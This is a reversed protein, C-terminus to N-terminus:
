AAELLIGDTHRQYVWESEHEPSGPIINFQRAIENILSKVGNARDSQVIANYCDIAKQKQKKAAFIHFQIVNTIESIVEPEVKIDVQMKGAQLEFSALLSNLLQRQKFFPVNGKVKKLELIATDISGKEKLILMRLLFSTWEDSSKPLNCKLLDAAETFMNLSLLTSVKANIAPLFDPRRLLISNYVAIAEQNQASYRMMKALGMSARINNPNRTAQQQYALLSAYIDGKKYHLYAQGLSINFDTPFLKLAESYLEEAEFFRGLEVLIKAKANMSVANPGTTDLIDTYASLAKMRDGSLKLTDARGNRAPINFPYLKITEDYLRLAMPYNGALKYVNAEASRALSVNRGGSKVQGFVTLAEGLRGLDVLTSALGSRLAYDNPWRELLKKYEELAGTYDGMDRLTEAAGAYSYAVDPIDDYEEATKLFLKRAEYFYGSERLIRARGNQAFHRDGIKEVNSLATEAEGWRKLNIFADALHGYTVSDSPNAETALTAWELELEFLEQLKAEQALSCLTKGVHESTSNSRQQQILQMAFRKAAELDRSKLKDIIAKQQVRVNEFVTRSSVNVGPTWREAGHTRRAKPSIEEVENRLKNNVDFRFPKLWATIIREAHPFSRLQNLLKLHLFKIKVQDGQTNVLDFIAGIHVLRNKFAKGEDNSFSLEKFQTNLSDNIKLIFIQNLNLWNWVLHAQHYGEIHKAVEDMRKGTPLESVSLANLTFRVVEENILVEELAELIDNIEEFPESDDMLMIFLRLAQDKYVGVKCLETAEELSNVRISQVDTCGAFMLEPRLNNSYASKDRVSHFCMASGSVFFGGAQASVLIDM